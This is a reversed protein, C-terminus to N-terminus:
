LGEVGKGALAQRIAGVSSLELIEQTTFEVEFDDELAAVLEIAKLSDWAPTNSPATADDLDGPAVRLVEAVTELLRDSM